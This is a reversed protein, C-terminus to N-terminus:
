KNKGYYKKKTLFDIEEPSLNIFLRSIGDKRMKESAKIKEGVPNSTQGDMNSTDPTIVKFFKM